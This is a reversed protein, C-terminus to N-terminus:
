NEVAGYGRPTYMWGAYRRTRSNGVIVTAFMDVDETPVDDLTCVTATEESRFADWVIGVPTEETRHERLQDLARSLHESRSRSRPNYFAVVFDGRAAHKVRSLIRDMPTLLDSLSIVAFDQAAPAGLRAASASLATIGPVVEVDVSSLSRSELKEFVPSAMAYIGVDGSSVLSVEQGDRALDLADDARQLEDGLDYARVEPIENLFSKVQNVYSEYGLVVDSTRLSQRAQPTLQQEGGPGLGVLRLGM